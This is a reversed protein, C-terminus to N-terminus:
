CMESSAPVLSPPVLAGGDIQSPTQLQGLGSQGSEGLLEGLTETQLNDGAGTADEFSGPQMVTLKFGRRRAEQQNIRRCLARAESLSGAVKRTPVLYHRGSLLTKNKDTTCLYYVQPPKPPLPPQQQPQPPLPPPPQQQPQPPLPQPPSPGREIRAGGRKRAQTEAGVDEVSPRLSGQREVMAAMATCLAASVHDGTPTPELSGLARAVAECTSVQGEVRARRLDAYLSPGGESLVVRQARQLLPHRTILQMSQKWTGDLVVLARGAPPAPLLEEIPIAGKGPYLLLTDPRTLVEFLRPFDAQTDCIPTVEKPTSGPPPRGNSRGTEADESIRRKPRVYGQDRGFDDVIVEVNELCMQVIPVTGIIAKNRAERFHQLVIVRTATQLKSAPLSACLCVRAPRHCRPCEPRM